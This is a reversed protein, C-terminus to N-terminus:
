IKKIFEDVKEQQDKVPMLKLRNPKISSGEEISFALLDIREGIIKFSSNKLIYGSYIRNKTAKL